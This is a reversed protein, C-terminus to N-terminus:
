SVQIRRASGNAAKPCTVTLVGDRLDATIRESDMPVPLHFTRSFSGHGREVRHYQECQSTRERREGSITLRGEHVSIDLEDRSMGPVEAMVIYQDATELIDVAPTWGSPGPAFRDLRQQIALLDRIPDWRAFAM